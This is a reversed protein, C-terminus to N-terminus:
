RVWLQDLLVGWQPNYQYNGARRSVIDVKKLTFLPVVPAEDLIARDLSAWLQNARYPDTSQLALARHIEADFRPNCFHAFNIGRCSFLVNIYNSAAPLDATWAFLGAQVRHRPNLPGQQSDYYVNDGVRKTRARYGLSRLLRKAYQAEGRHRDPHWITVLAGRTGSAAVLRRARAVDPATWTAAGPQLTYPCSPRYGPFDPPLIQCAPQAGVGGTSARAAAGRDAAYNVARRVRVDDFPAVRTNLFLYIVRNLPNVHVQSGYQTVVEQQLEPPVGGLVVDRKGHEVARVQARTSKSGTVVIKDPYGDPQAAKSWEHFDRNRELTFPKVSAVVYPGTGPLPRMGVDKSPADAPVILGYPLALKDLFDPDPARLKFTVTRTPEDTLIGHSLDCHPARPKCADAGVIGSFYGIAVPDLGVTFVREFTRRVDQPGVTRGNSFRISPRLRFNYTRGGDTPTPLAVALDPVLQLGDAGGVRRFGVLGDNTLTSTPAIGANLTDLSEPGPLEAAIQLTGGLHAAGAARVAVFVRGDASAVGEPQAGLRLTRTVRNARPDIMMVTGDFENTVWLGDHTSALGRPGDGVPITAVVGGSDPDIRSVTGDLNNAAWVSGHAVAVDVPGNGVPVTDVVAKRLPDIRLVVNREEDAVWLSGAGVALAQTSPGAPLRGLRAGTRADLRTVTQADKNAVWVTRRDLAVADPTGGVAIAQVVGNTRPDIRSVTGALSNTVWVGRDDAAVASAGSGVQITQRVEGSDPDVRSVTQQDTSTVWLSGAGAAIDSPSTAMTGARVVKGNEIVGVGDGTVRAADDRSGAIAFIAAALVAAVVAAAIVAWRDLRPRREPPATGEEAAVLAPPALQHDQRLIATELARLEESPEIGLEDVLVSRAERYAALADAQRGARYLALMLQGRLRERLPHEAVLSELEPVLDGDRGRALDADIRVELAALRSEELRGIEAQAFPLDALDQLPPGRWLELAEALRVGAADADGAALASRGEAVLLEFRGVDIQEAPVQLVYGPERTVLREAGDPELLKRLASVLGYVAVTATQPPREGWLADILGHTSVVRNPSLALLAVLARQKPRGIAVLRGGRRLEVPGLLGIELQPSPAAKAGEM